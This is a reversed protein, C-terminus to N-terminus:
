MVSKQCCGVTEVGFGVWVRLQGVVPCCNDVHLGFEGDEGADDGNQGTWSEAMGEGASEGM